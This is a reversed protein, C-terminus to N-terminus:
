VGIRGRLTSYLQDQTQFDIRWRYTRPDTSDRSVDINVVRAIIESPVRNNASRKQMAIFRASAASLRERILFEVNADLGDDYDQHHELVEALGAGFGDSQTDIALMESLDQRTKDKGSVMQISGSANYVIDGNKITFTSAM